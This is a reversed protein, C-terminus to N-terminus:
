NARSRTSEDEEWVGEVIITYNGIATDEFTRATLNAYVDEELITMGAGPEILIRDRSLAVEVRSTSNLLYARLRVYGRFGGLSEGYVKFTATRSRKVTKSGPEVVLRFSPKAAVELEVEKENNQEGGLYYDREEVRDDPDVVCKVVYRGEVAKWPTSTVRVAAGSALGRVLVSSVLTSNLLFVVLFSSADREGINVISARFVVEDGARPAPPNYTLNAVVLDPAGRPRVTLPMSVYHWYHWEKGGGGYEEEVWYGHATINLYYVGPEVSEDVSITMTSTFTDSTSAILGKQPNFSVAVGPPPAPPSLYLEVSWSPPGGKHYVTVKVQIASGQEVVPYYNSLVLEIGWEGEAIVVPPTALLQTTILAALAVPLACRM